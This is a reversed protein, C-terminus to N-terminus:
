HLLESALLGYWYTEYIFMYMYMYICQVCTRPLVTNPRGAGFDEPNTNPYRM